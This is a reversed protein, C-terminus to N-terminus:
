IGAPYSRLETSKRCGCRGTRNGYQQHQVYGGQFAKEFMEKTTVLAM